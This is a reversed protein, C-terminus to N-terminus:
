PTMEVGKLAKQVVSVLNTGRISQGEALIMGTDGNVLFTQPIGVIEYKATIEACWDKDGYIQRWPMKLERMLGAIKGGAGDEDLSVGLIEFGLPHLDKYARALSPMEIVCPGCTTAWFDLLVVKGKFDGPFNVEHGDTTRGTFSLASHGATLIPSPKSEGVTRASKVIQFLRGSATLGTIEYTVGCINFPKNVPFYEHFRDFKGDGNVKRFDGSVFQDFLMAEYSRDGLTLRGTRAYDAACFLRDALRAHRSDHKDFKHM